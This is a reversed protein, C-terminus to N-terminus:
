SLPKASITNLPDFQGNLAEPDQVIDAVRCDDCMKLRDLARETKFMYHDKLKDNMRNIISTPAFAKGCSICAFPIDQNLVRPHNRSERNFIFRPSLTIAQEPCTQSCSGCQICHSELFFIEPIARNSGDQLAKGPCASVCAMCLTCSKEDISVQGFPAGAPLSVLERKEQMQQFCHDIALFLADRKNNPMNYLAPELSFTNKVRYSQHFNKELTVMLPKFGLGSLVTQLWDLQHQLSRLSAAPIKQDILLVVQSAGYVLASLCLEMGVSALEEVRVPLYDAPLNEEIKEDAHFVVVPNNGGGDRFAQLMKRLQNGRDSLTPYVYQIAGSPCVTACSGGGQCLYPDVQIKEQLSTIADAPCSEICKTCVSKGNVGHACLASDYNFYKPKEFEGTMYVLKEALQHINQQTCIEHFYGLPLMENQLIPRENCDLILDAQLMEINGVSDKLSIKFDGFHGRVDIQRGNLAIMQNGESMDVSGAMLLLTLQLPRSFANCLKLTSNNGMVLVRGNSQYTLLSTPTRHFDRLATQAASKAQKNMENMM